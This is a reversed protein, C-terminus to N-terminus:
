GIMVTEIDKEMRDNPIFDHSHQLIGTVDKTQNESLKTSPVACHECNTAGERHVMNSHFQSKVERSIVSSFPVVTLQLANRTDMRAVAESVRKRQEDQN